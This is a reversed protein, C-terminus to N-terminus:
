PAAAGLGGDPVVTLLTNDGVPGFSPGGFFAPTVTESAELPAGEEEVWCVYFALDAAGAHRALYRGFSRVADREETVVWAMYDGGYRAANAATAAADDRADDFSSRDQYSFYCGCLRAPAVAYVFPGPAVRRVADGLPDDAPLE